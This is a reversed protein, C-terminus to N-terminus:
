LWLIASAMSTRRLYITYFDAIPVEQTFVCVGMRKLCSEPKFLRRRGQEPFTKGAAISVLQNIQM